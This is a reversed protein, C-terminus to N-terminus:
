RAPPLTGSTIRPSRDGGVLGLELIEIELQGRGDVQGAAVHEFRHLGADIGLHDVARGAAGAAFREVGHGLVADLQLDLGPHRHPRIQLLQDAPGGFLRDDGADALPDDAGDARGLRVVFHQGVRHLMELVTSARRSSECVAKSITDISMASMSTPSFMPARSCASWASASMRTARALASPRRAM